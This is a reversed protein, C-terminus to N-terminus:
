LFIKKTTLMFKIESTDVITWYYNYYHTKWNELTLTDVSISDIDENGIVGGFGISNLKPLFHNTSNIISDWEVNEYRIANLSDLNTYTVSTVYLSDYSYCNSILIFFFLIFKKM